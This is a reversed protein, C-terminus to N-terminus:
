QVLKLTQRAEKMKKEWQIQSRVMETLPKRPYWGLQAWAKSIDAVLYAPDGLRPNGIKINHQPLSWGFANIVDVVSYGKGGGINYVGSKGTDRLQWLALLHAYCLDSVHIYDRICTGDKTPYDTGYIEMTERKGIATEAAIKILHNGYSQGTRLHEDAGAVNFYRLCVASFDHVTTMEHLYNEVMLKSMGYANMPETPAQEQVAVAPDGYVAATSSFVFRKVGGEIATTILNFSNIFNNEYYKTPNQVSEPVSISGAFHIIDTIGYKVILMNVLDCDGCDGEIFVCEKPVLSRRGNSLNDLVIVEHNNMLELCMHSGIYGAGGTILVSM